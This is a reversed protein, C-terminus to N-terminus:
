AADPAPQTELPPELYPGPLELGWPAAAGLVASRHLGAGVSSFVVPQLCPPARFSEWSNPTLMKSCGQRVQMSGGGSPCPRAPHQLGSNPSFERIRLIQPLNGASGHASLIGPAAGGDGGRSSHSFGLSRAPM